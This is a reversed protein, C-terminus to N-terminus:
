ELWNSGLLAPGEGPVVLLPLSYEQGEYSVDVTCSGKPKVEEGTYACLVVGSKKLPLVDKESVFKDYIRESIVSLFAGTAIEMDLTQGGVSLQVKYPAPRKSDFSFLSYAGLGQERGPTNEGEELHHTAQPTDSKKDTSPPTQKNKKRAQCM